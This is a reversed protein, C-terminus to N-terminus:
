SFLYCKVNGCDIDILEVLSKLNVWTVFKHAGVPLWREEFSTTQVAGVHGAKRRRDNQVTNVWRRHLLRCRDCRRRSRTDRYLHCHLVDAPCHDVAPLQRSDVIEIWRLIHRPRCLLVHDAFSPLRWARYQSLVLPQPCFSCIFLMIVWSIM